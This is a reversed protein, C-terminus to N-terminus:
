PDVTVEKASTEVDLLTVPGAFVAGARRPQGHPNAAAGPPRGAGIWAPGTAAPLSFISLLVTMQRPKLLKQFSALLLNLNGERNFEQRQLFRSLRPFAGQRLGSCTPASIRAAWAWQWGTM